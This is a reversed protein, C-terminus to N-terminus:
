SFGGLKGEVSIEFSHFEPNLTWSFTLNTHVSASQIQHVELLLVLFQARLYRLAALLLSLLLQARPIAPNSVNQPRLHRLATATSGQLFGIARLRM